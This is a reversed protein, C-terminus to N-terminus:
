KRRWWYIGGGAVVVGVLAHWVKVPAVITKTFFSEDSGGGADKSKGKGADKGDKGGDKPKDALADGAAKSAVPLLASGAKKALDAADGILGGEGAGVIDIGIM